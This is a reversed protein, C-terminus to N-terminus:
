ETQIFCFLDITVELGDATLVRIADDGTKMGEDNVGSMTYNQTKIDMKQVELLPNIFHLGSGLVDRQVKGFLKKVGAEGADIQMICATLIGILIIIMGVIRVVGSIRHYRADNKLFFTAVVIIVLGLIILIM